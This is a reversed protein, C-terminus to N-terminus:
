PVTHIGEGGINGNSHFDQLTHCLSHQGVICSGLKTGLWWSRPREGFANSLVFVHVLMIRSGRRRLGRALRLVGCLMGYTVEIMKGM